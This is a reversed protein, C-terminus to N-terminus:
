EGEVKFGTKKIKETLSKRMKRGLGQKDKETLDIPPRPELNKKPNGRMHAKFQPRDSGFVLEDKSVEFITHSTDSTLDSKLGGTFQLIPKIGVAKQKIPAYSASLAPWKGHEGSAGESDFLQKEIQFLDPKLDQFVETLDRLEQEVQNFGRQLEPLGDVTIQTQFRAM